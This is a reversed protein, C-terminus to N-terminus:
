QARAQTTPMCPYPGCCGNCDHYGDPCDISSRIALNRLDVASGALSGAAGRSSTHLKLPRMTGGVHSYTKVAPRVSCVAALVILCLIALSKKM